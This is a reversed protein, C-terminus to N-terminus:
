TERFQYAEFIAGASDLREGERGVSRFIYRADHDDTKVPSGLSIEDGHQLIQKAIRKGNVQLSHIDTHIPVTLVMIAIYVWTGNSSNLDEIYVM